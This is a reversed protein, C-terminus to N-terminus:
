SRVGHSLYEQYWAITERLGSELAVSPRWGLERRARAASVTQVPIENEAENLIVPTLDSGMLYIIRQVVDLVSLRQGASFNFARGSLLPRDRLIEALMLVGTSGDRVYLYDRVPTGDSRIQPSEGAIVSRITGPVIRSWNLDGGGYLNACRTVAVPLDYTRAYAQAILDAAAKSVDYPALPRLPMSETYPRGGADGYAKDSSAVVISTVSPQRRCAELISWTGEINHRFTTVPDVIAPGVLTQAALHVVTDVRGRRLLRKIMAEDRVDGDVVELAGDPDSPRRRDWALDLGFVVAGWRLLADTVWSGLLGAAGTVLVRRGGWRDLTVGM